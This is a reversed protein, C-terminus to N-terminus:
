WDVIGKKRAPRTTVRRCEPRGSRDRSSASRSSGRSRRPGISWWARRRSPKGSRGPRSAGGARSDPSPSSAPCPGSLSTEDHCYTPVVLRGGATLARRFAAMAGPLDPVLHLVNTAVVADFSAPEFRLAYLDAQECRVNTLGEKRVRADLAEVMAPAYDTAIVENAARALTPTVLGTGAGVELILGSGRVTEGVLEVMRPIPRGLLVMSRDYSRAHRNWYQRDRERTEM